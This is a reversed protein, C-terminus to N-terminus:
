GFLPKYKQSRTKNGRVTSTNRVGTYPPLRAVREATIGLYGSPHEVIGEATSIHRIMKAALPLRLILMTYLTTHPRLSSTHFRGHYLRDSSSARLCARMDNRVHM